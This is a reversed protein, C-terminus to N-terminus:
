FGYRMSFGKRGRGRFAAVAVLPALLLPAGIAVMRSSVFTPFLIGYGYGLNCPGIFLWPGVCESLRGFPAPGLLPKRLGDVGDSAMVAMLLRLRDREGDGFLTGGISRCIVPGARGILGPEAGMGIFFGGTLRPEHCGLRFDILSNSASYSSKSSSRGSSALKHFTGSEGRGGVSLDGIDAM